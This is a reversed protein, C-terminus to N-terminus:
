ELPETEATAGERECSGFSVSPLNTSSASSTPPSVPSAATSAFIPSSEAPTSSQSSLRPTNQLSGNM